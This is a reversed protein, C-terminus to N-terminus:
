VLCEALLDPHLNMTKEFSAQRDKNISIVYGIYGSIFVADKEYFISEFTGNGELFISSIDGQRVIKQIHQGPEYPGIKSHSWAFPYDVKKGNWINSEGSLALELEIETIDIGFYKLIMANCVYGGQHRPNLDTTIIEGSSNILCDLGFLGRYGLNSLYKGVKITADEIIRRHKESIVSPYVNGFYRTGRMIQDTIAIIKVKGKGVVIASSNPSFVIREFIEAALLKGNANIKRFKSLLLKAMKPSYVLGAEAGGSSHGATLYCPVAKNLDKLFDKKGSYVKTKNVPLGLKKFLLAQNIKNDFKQAIERKGGITIVKPNKIDLFATTFPFVFVNEQKILLKKIIKKITPSSSFEINTDEYEPLLVVSKKLSKEVEDAKKNLVIYNEKEFHKNPRASYIYIPKFTKKYKRELTKAMMEAMTDFRPGLISFFYQTDNEFM